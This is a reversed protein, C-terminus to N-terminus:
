TSSARTAPWVTPVTGNSTQENGGELLRLTVAGMLVAYVCYGLLRATAAGSAGYGLLELCALISAAAWCFSCLTVQWMRSHAFALATLPQTVAVCVATWVTIVLAPSAVLFESGYCQVIYRSLLSVGLALAGFAVFNLRMLKWVFARAQTREDRAM